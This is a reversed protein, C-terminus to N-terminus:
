EVHLYYYWVSNMPARGSPGVLAPLYTLAILAGARVIMEALEHRIAGGSGFRVLAVCMTDSNAYSDLEKILFSNPYSQGYILYAIYRSDTPPNRCSKHPNVKIAM